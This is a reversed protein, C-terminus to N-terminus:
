ASLGLGAGASRYSKYSFWDVTGRGVNCARCALAINNLHNTGGDQKRKLHEITAALMPQPGPKGTPAVMSRECYCCRGQQAKWLKTRVAQKAM